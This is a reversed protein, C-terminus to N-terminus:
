FTGFGSLGLFSGGNRGGGGTVDSIKRSRGSSSKININWNTLVDTNKSSGCIMPDNSVAYLAVPFGFHGEHLNRLLVGADPGFGAKPVNRDRVFLVDVVELVNLIYRRIEGLEGPMQFHLYRILTAHATELSQEGV